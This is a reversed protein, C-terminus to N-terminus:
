QLPSENDTALDATNGGTGSSVAAQSRLKRYQRVPLVFLAFSSLAVILSFAAEGFSNISSGTFIRIAILAAYVTILSAVVSLGLWVKSRFKGASLLVTVLLGHILFWGAIWPLLFVAMFDVSHAYAVAPVMATAPVILSSHKKSAM